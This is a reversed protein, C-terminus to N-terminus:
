NNDQFAETKNDVCRLGEGGTDVQLGSNLGIVCYKM